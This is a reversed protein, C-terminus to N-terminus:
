ERSSHNYLGVRGSIRDPKAVLWGLQGFPQCLDCELGFLSHGNNSWLIWAYPSGNKSKCCALPTPWHIGILFKKRRDEPGVLLLYGSWAPRPRVGFSGVVVGGVCSQKAQLGRKLDEVLGAFLFFSFCVALIGGFRTLFTIVTGMLTM